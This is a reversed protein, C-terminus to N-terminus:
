WVTEVDPFAAFASDNTLLALGEVLSQAALMRDFPDRYPVALGGALLAHTSFIPLERARLTALHAAYAAIIPGAHPLKGLRQKTAVEWASVASVFIDNAPARILDKARPSLRAPEALAWLLAHTDLLL